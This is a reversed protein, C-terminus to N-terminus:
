IDIAPPPNEDRYDEYWDALFTGIVRLRKDIGYIGIAILFLFFIVLIEFWM